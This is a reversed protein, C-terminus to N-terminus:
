LPRRPGDQLRHGISGGADCLCGHAPDTLQALCHHVADVHDAAKVTMDQKYEGIQM